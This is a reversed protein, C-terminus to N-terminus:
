TIAPWKYWRGPRTSSGPRTSAELRLLLLLLLLCLLLSALSTQGCSCWSACPGFIQLPYLTGKRSKAWAPGAKLITLPLWSVKM